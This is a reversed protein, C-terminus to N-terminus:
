SVKGIIVVPKMTLTAAVGAAATTVHTVGGVWVLGCFVVVYCVLRLQQFMKVQETCYLVTSHGKYKCYLVTYKTRVACYTVTSCVNCDPSKFKIM